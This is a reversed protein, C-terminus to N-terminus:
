LMMGLIPHRLQIKTWRKVWYDFGTIDELYNKKREIDDTLKAFREVVEEVQDCFRDVSYVGVKMLKLSRISKSAPAKDGKNSSATCGM